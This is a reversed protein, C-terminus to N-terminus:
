YPLLGLFVMVLLAINKRPLIMSIMRHSCISFGNGVASHFLTKRFKLKGAGGALLLDIQPKVESIPHAERNSFYGGESVTQNAPHPV